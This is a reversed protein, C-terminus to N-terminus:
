KGGLAVKQGSLENRYLVWKEYQSALYKRQVSLTTVQHEADKKGDNDGVQGLHEVASELSRVESELSSIQLALSKITQDVKAIELDIQAIAVAPNPSVQQDTSPHQQPTAITETNRALVPSRNIADHREGPVMMLMLFGVAIAGAIVIFKPPIKKTDGGQVGDKQATRQPKLLYEEPNPAPM